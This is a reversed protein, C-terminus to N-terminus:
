PTLFQEKEEEDEILDNILSTSESISQKMKKAYEVWEAFNGTSWLTQTSNQLNKSIRKIVKRETADM